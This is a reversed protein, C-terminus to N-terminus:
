ALNVEALSGCVKLGMTKTKANACEVVLLGSDLWEQVLNMAAKLPVNYRKQILRPAYRDANKGKQWPNGSNWAEAISDLIQKCVERPPLGGAAAEESAMGTIVLSTKPKNFDLGNKENTQIKEM